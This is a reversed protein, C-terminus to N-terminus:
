RTRRKLGLGLAVLATVLALVSLGTPWATGLGENSSTAPGAAESSGGAADAAGVADPAEEPATLALVPAPHEPEASADVAVENWTVREGSSYGQVAKFVLEGSEPLQGLSLPFDQFQGARVGGDTAVWTVEAVVTTVESGFMELPEDLERQQTTVRWGPVPTTQVSGLPQDVPLVVRVRTTAADDRENPVRFSVVSVGGGEVTAPQVSVHASAPATSALLAAGVGVVLLCARATRGRSRSTPGDNAM